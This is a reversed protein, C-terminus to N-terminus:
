LRAHALTKREHLGADKGYDGRRVPTGPEALFGSGDAAGFVIGQGTGTQNKSFIGPESPAGRRDPFAGDAPTVRRVRNSLFDAIYVVGAGDVAIGEPQNSLPKFPLVVMAPLASPAPAPSRRLSAPPLFGASRIFQTTPPISSPNGTVDVASAAPSFLSSTASVREGSFGKVGNGAVTSITGDPAVKRVRARQNQAVYLNGAGDLAIGSALHLSASTAPPQGRIGNGAVVELIADRRVRMVMFNDVDALYVNGNSDL